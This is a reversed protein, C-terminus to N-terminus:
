LLHLMARHASRLNALGDSILSTYPQAAAELESYLWVPLGGSVTVDYVVSSLDVAVQYVYFDNTSTYLNSLSAGAGCDSHHKPSQTRRALTSDRLVGAACGM